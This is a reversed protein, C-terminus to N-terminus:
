YEAIVRREIEEHEAVILKALDIVGMNRKAAAPALLRQVYSSGNLAKLAAQYLIDSRSIEERGGIVKEDHHVEVRMPGRDEAMPEDARETIQKIWGPAAPTTPAPPLRDQAHESIPAAIALGLDRLGDAALRAASRIADIEATAAREIAALQPNIDVPAAPTAASTRQELAALRAETGPDTVPATVSPGTTGNQLAAVAAELRDLRRCTKPDLTPDHDHHEPNSSDQM